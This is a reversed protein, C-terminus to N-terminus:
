APLRVPAPARVDVPDLSPKLLVAIPVLAVTILAMACAGRVGIAAVLLGGGVAGVICGLMLGAQVTAVVQALRERPTNRVAVTLLMPTAACPVGVALYGAVASGFGLPLSLLVAGVVAGMVSVRAARTLLERDTGLRPLLLGAVAIALAPAAALVGLTRPHGIAHAYAVAVAECAMTGPTVALSILVAIRLAPTERLTAVTQKLQARWAIRADARSGVTTGAPLTCVLVASIAFTAANLVLAGTPQVLVVLFGGMLLGLMTVFQTTLQQLVLGDATRSPPLLEPLVRLRVAEFVPSPFSGVFMLVLLAWTPLGTAMFIFVLARLVDCAILVHRAPFRGIAATVAPAFAYPLFAVAYVLALDVPSGSRQFVLVGLALKAVWDGIGSLGQAFWLRRVTRIALVSGVAAIRGRAGLAVSQTSTSM